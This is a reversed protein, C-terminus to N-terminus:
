YWTSALPRDLRHPRSPAVLGRRDSEALERVKQELEQAIQRWGCRENEQEHFTMARGISLSMGGLSPLSQGPPWSEHAGTIAVPVVPVRTGAVLAGVGAKFRAIEGGRSRTGEPFLVMIPGRAGESGRQLSGRLTGLAKSGCAGRWVPRANLFLSTLAARSRSSFFTDGAALLGIDTARARPVSAALAMADLHSSHNAVLVFSGQTPLNQGGRIRLNHVLRMYSRIVAWTGAQLLRRSVGRECELSRNREFFSLALDSAPQYAWPNSSPIGVGRQGAIVGPHLRIQTDM